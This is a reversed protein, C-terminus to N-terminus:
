LFETILLCQVVLKKEFLQAVLRVCVIYSPLKMLMLQTQQNLLNHARVTLLDM